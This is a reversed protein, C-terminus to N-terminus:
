AKGAVLITRETLNITITSIEGPITNGNDAPDVPVIAFPNMTLLHQESYEFTLTWEVGRTNLVKPNNIAHFRGYVGMYPQTTPYGTNSSCNFENVHYPFNYNEEYTKVYGPVDFRKVCGFEIDGDWVLLKPQSCMGNELMMATSHDNIADAMWPVFTWDELVDAGVGDRRCRLMTFSFQTKKEGVQVSSYPQNWEIIDKYLGRAENGVVDIADETFGITVFAPIAETSWKFCVSGVLRNEAKLVAPDIWPGTDPLMDKREFYLTDGIIRRRGNFVTALKQLFTDGTEYPENDNIYLVGDDKTGKAVPAFMLVSDYYDSSPNTLISSSFNLGCITCVNQMYSRVLPSPHKRGCGIISNILRDRFEEYEQLFNTGEDGDFDIHGIDVGPITNVADIIANIVEIIASIIVVIPTLVYLMLIVGSALSLIVHHLWDPRLEDCYVMRPHAQSKFGNRDDAILTSKLCDAAKSSTTEEMASVKIFCDGQCWSAEAGRFVGDFLLIPDGDGCTEYFQVPVKAMRGDLPEILAAKLVAFPEGPGTGYFVLENSARKLATETEADTVTITITVQQEGELFKPDVVQGNLVIRIM